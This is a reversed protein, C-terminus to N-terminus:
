TTVSGAVNEYDWKMDVIKKALILSEFCLFSVQSLLPCTHSYSVCISYCIFVEEVLGHRWGLRYCGPM